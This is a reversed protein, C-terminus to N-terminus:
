SLDKLREKEPESQERNRHAIGILGTLFVAKIRFGSM